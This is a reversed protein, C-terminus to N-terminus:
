QLESEVSQVQLFSLVLCVIRTEKIRPCWNVIWLVPDKTDERNMSKWWNLFCGGWSQIIVEVASRRADALKNHYKVFGCKCVKEALLNTVRQNCEQHQQEIIKRDNEMDYTLLMATTKQSFVNTTEWHVTAVTQLEPRTKKEDAPHRILTSWLPTKKEMSMRSKTMMPWFVYKWNAELKKKTKNKTQGGQKKQYSVLVKKCLYIETLTKKEMLNAFERQKLKPLYRGRHEYFWGLLDHRPLHPNSVIKLEAHIKRAHDDGGSGVNEVTASQCFDVVSALHLRCPKPRLVKHKAPTGFLSSRSHQRTCKCSLESNQCARREVRRYDNSHQSVNM